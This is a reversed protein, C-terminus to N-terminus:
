CSTCALVWAVPVKMRSLSQLTATVEHAARQLGLGKISRLLCKKNQRLECVALCPTPELRVKDMGLCTGAIAAATHHEPSLIKTSFTLFWVSYGQLPDQLEM